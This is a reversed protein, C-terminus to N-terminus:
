GLDEGLNHTGRGSNLPGVLSTATRLKGLLDHLGALFDAGVLFLAAEAVIGANSSRSRDRALSGASQRPEHGVNVVATASIRGAPEVRTDHRSVSRARGARELFRLELRNQRVHPGFAAVRLGDDH